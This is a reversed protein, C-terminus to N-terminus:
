SLKKCCFFQANVSTERTFLTGQQNHIITYGHESNFIKVLEQPQLRRSPRYPPALIEESEEFTSWVFVGGVQLIQDRIEYLLPRHLFRSGHIFHAAPFAKALQGEKRLDLNVWQLNRDSDFGGRAALQRARELAYSHNDIGSVMWQSGLRQRMFIADRGNGCGLDLACLPPSPASEFELKPWHTNMVYRLFQSPRWSQASSLGIDLTSGSLDATTLSKTVVWGKSVLLKKVRAACIFDEAVLWLEDEHPPPLELLRSELQEEPILSSHPLHGVCYKEASRVDLIIIPHLGDPFPGFKTLSEHCNIDDTMSEKVKRTFSQLHVPRHLAHGGKLKPSLISSMQLVVGLEKSFISLQHMRSFDITSKM